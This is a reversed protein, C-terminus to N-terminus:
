KLKKKPTGNTLEDVIVIPCDIDALSAIKLLVVEDRAHACASPSIDRGANPANTIQYGYEGSPYRYVTIYALTTTSSGMGERPCEDEHGKMVKALCERETIEFAEESTSRNVVAVYADRKNRGTEKANMGTFTVVMGWGPILNKPYRASPIVSSRREGNSDNQPDAACMPVAAIGQGAQSSGVM